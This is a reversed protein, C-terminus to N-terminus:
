RYSIMVTSLCLGTCARHVVRVISDELIKEDQWTSKKLPHSAGLISRVSSYVWVHMFILTNCCGVRILVCVCVSICVCVYMYVHVYMRMYACMCVYVRMWADFIM